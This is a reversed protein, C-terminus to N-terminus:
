KNSYTVMDVGFRRKPPSSRIELYMGRWVILALEPTRLTERAYTYQEFDDVCINQVAVIIDGSKLGARHTMDNEGKVIVGVIPSSKFDGIKAEIIGRPFIKTLRNKAESDYRADGTKTKYRLCFQTLPNPSDYREEIKRYWEFAGSHDGTEELFSAKAELGSYSYVEGAMDAIKQAKNEQGNKLYYHILWDAHNAATVSDPGLNMGKEVYEAAKTENRPIFYDGLKFYRSPDLAAAKVMLPEYQEPRDTVYDALKTMAYTSFDSVPRYIELTQEYTPQNRYKLRILNFAIIKDYPAVQHLRDLQDFTDPRNVLSPHNMRPEPDYATGPPPNHKHWENIHPNQGTTYIPGFSVKYCIYNWIQPSVLHPFSRTATFADDIASHYTTNDTCNFRRVFPALRLNGFTHNINSAFQKAEDHVGWKRELFNFNESVAHCVQRHFLMAWQGWGIVRVKPNGNSNPAFCREPFKNLEPIIQDKNLKKGQALEFVASMDRLELALSLQLLGHGTEVSYSTSNAIRCYDPLRTVEVKGLDKWVIDIDVSRGFAEFRAIKELPSPTEITNLERYDQTNRAKLVRVWAACHPDALESHALKGLAATQRNMLTDLAADALRAEAGMSKEDLTHALALHATIRCMQSRVDYFSGSCERLAFAALVMAARGHLQANRFDNQLRTSVEINAKEISISTADTLANILTWDEGGKSVSSTKDLDVQKFLADVVSAYTEPSWIPADIKLTLKIAPSNPQLSISIAYVPSRFATGSTEVAEVSFAKADPLKAHKAFFVMEALDAIVTEVIFQSEDQFHTKFYGNSQNNDGGVANPNREDTISQRLHDSKRFSYFTAAIICAIVLFM